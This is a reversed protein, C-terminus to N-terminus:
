QAPVFRYSAVAPVHITPGCSRVVTARTCFLVGGRGPIPREGFPSRRPGGIADDAVPVPIAGNIATRALRAGRRLRGPVAGSATSRATRDGRPTANVPAVADDVGDVRVASLVTGHGSSM